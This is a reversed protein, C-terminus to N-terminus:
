IKFGGKFSAIPKWHSTIIKYVRDPHKASLQRAKDHADKLFSARDVLTGDLWILYNTAM